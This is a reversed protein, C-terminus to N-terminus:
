HHKSLVILRMMKKKRRRKKRKKMKITTQAPTMLAQHMGISFNVTLILEIFAIISKNGSLFHISVEAM